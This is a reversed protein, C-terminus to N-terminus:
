CSSHTGLMFKTSNRQQLAARQCVRRELYITFFCILVLPESKLHAVHLLQHSAPSSPPRQNAAAREQLPPAMSLTCFHIGTAFAHASCSTRQRANGRQMRVHECHSSYIVSLPENACGCACWVQLALLLCLCKLWHWRSCRCDSSSCVNSGRLRIDASYRVYRPPKAM